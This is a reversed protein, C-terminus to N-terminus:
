EVRDIKLILGRDHLCDMWMYRKIHMPTPQTSEYRIRGEQLIRVSVGALVILTHVARNLKPLSPVLHLFIELTFFLMAFHYFTFELINCSIRLHIHIQYCLSSACLFVYLSLYGQSLYPVGSVRLSLPLSCCVLLFINSRCVVLWGRQGQQCKCFM